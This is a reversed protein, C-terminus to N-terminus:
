KWDFTEIMSQIDAKIFSIVPKLSDTNPVNRFYLSGRVFHKERDTIFFQYSSAADGGVEYIIGSAGKANQFPKEDIFDAKKTHKYTMKRSDKIFQDLSKEDVIEKYTLHLTSNFKEFEVDIWCPNETKKNFFLSDKAVRAYSPYDFTFPCIESRYISMSTKEPFDVKPYAKPKPKPVPKSDCSAMFLGIAFFSLLVSSSIKKPM